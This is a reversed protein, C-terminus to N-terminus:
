GIPPLACYGLTDRCVQEVCYGCDCDADSRCSLLECQHTSLYPSDAVCRRNAPCAFGTTCSLPVCGNTDAENGPQCVYGAACSWADTDCRAPRCGHEDVGAGEACLTPEPCAYGETCPIPQCHGDAGCREGMGCSAESCPEQCASIPGSGFCSDSGTTRCVQGAECAADEYCSSFGTTCPQPPTAQCWENVACQDRSRCRAGAAEVEVAGPCSQGAPGRSPEQEATTRDTAGGCSLLTGFLWYGGLGFCRGM